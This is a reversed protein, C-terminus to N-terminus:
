GLIRRLAAPCCGRKTRMLADNLVPNKLKVISVQVNSVVKQNEILSLIVRENEKEVLRFQDKEESCMKVMKILKEENDLDILEISIFRYKWFRIIIEKIFLIAIQLGLFLIQDLFFFLLMIALNLFYGRGFSKIYYFEKRLKRFKSKSKHKNKKKIFERFEPHLDTISRRIKNNKRSKNKINDAVIVQSSRCYAKFRTAMLRDLEVYGLSAIRDQIDDALIFQYKVIQKIAPLFNRDMVIEHEDHCLNEMCLIVLISKHCHKLWLKRATKSLGWQKYHELIKEDDGKRVLNLEDKISIRNKIRRWKNKFISLLLAFHFFIKEIIKM